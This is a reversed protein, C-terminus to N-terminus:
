HGVRASHATHRTSTKSILPPSFCKSKFLAFGLWDAGEEVIMDAEAQDIIGAVQILNQM